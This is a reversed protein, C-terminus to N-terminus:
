SSQVATLQQTSYLETITFEQTASLTNLVTFHLLARKLACINPPSPFHITFHPTRLMITCVLLTFLVTWYVVARFLEATSYSSVKGRSVSWGMSEQRKWGGVLIGSDKIEREYIM